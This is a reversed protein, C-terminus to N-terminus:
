RRRRRASAILGAGALLTAAAPTPVIEIEIRTKENWRGSLAASMNNVLTLQLSNMSIGNRVAIASWPIPSGTGNTVVLPDQFQPFDPVNLDRVFLSGSIVNGSTHSRNGFERIIVGTIPGNIAAITVQLTDTKPSNFTAGFNSPTFIFTNGAIVPNGFYGSNTYGNSWTFDLATGSPNTWQVIAHAAPAITFAVVAVGALRVIANM